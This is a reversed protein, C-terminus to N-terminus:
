KHHRINAPLPENMVGDIMMFEGGLGRVGFM